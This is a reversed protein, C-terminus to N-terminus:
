SRFCSGSKGRVESAGEGFMYASENAYNIMYVDVGAIM